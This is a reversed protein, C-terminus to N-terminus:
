KYGTFRPAFKQIQMKFKEPNVYSCKSPSWLDLLLECYALFKHVQLVRSSVLCIKRSSAGKMLAGKLRSSNNIDAYANSTQLCYERLLRTHSLCQIVSNM